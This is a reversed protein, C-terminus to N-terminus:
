LGLMKILAEESKKFDVETPKVKSYLDNRTDNLAQAISFIDEQGIFDHHCKGDITPENMDLIVRNLNAYSYNDAIIFYYTAIGRDNKLTIEVRNNFDNPVKNAVSVYGQMQKGYADPLMLSEIMLQWMNVGLKNFGVGFTVGVPCNRLKKILENEAEASPLKYVLVLMTILACVTIKKIIRKSVAISLM